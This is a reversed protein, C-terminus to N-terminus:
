GMRRELTETAPTPPVTQPREAKGTKHDHMAGTLADNFLTASMEMLQQDRLYSAGEILSGYIYLDPFRDLLWNNPAANTLSSVREYYHLTANGTVIPRTVLQGALLACYQPVSPRQGRFWESSEPSVQELFIERTGLGGPAYRLSRMEIFGEPLLAYGSADFSVPAEVEMLRHRLRRNIRAEANRIFRPIMTPLDSRNLWDAIATQLETYNM